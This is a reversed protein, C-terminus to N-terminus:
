YAVLVVFQKSTSNPRQRYGYFPAHSLPYYKVGLYVFLSGLTKSIIKYVTCKLITFLQQSKPM